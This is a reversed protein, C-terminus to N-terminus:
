FGVYPQLLVTGTPVTGDRGAQPTAVVLNGGNATAMKWDIFPGPGLETEMTGNTYVGGFNTYGTVDGSTVIAGPGLLHDHPNNKFGPQSANGPDNWADQYHFMTSPTLTYGDYNGSRQRSLQMEPPGPPPLMDGRKVNQVPTFFNQPSDSGLGLRDAQNQLLGRYAASLAHEIPQGVGTSQGGSANDYGAPGSPVLMPAPPHRPGPNPPTGPLGGWENDDDLLGM